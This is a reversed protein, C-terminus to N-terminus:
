SLTRSLAFPRCSGNEKPIRSYQPFELCVMIHATRVAGRTDKQTVVRHYVSCVGTSSTRQRLENFASCKRSADFKAHILSHYFALCTIAERLQAVKGPSWPPAASPFWPFSPLATPSSRGSRPQMYQARSCPRPRVISLHMTPGFLVAFTPACATALPTLRSSNTTSGTPTPM